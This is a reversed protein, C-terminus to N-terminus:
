KAFAETFLVGQRLREVASKCHEEDIEIGVATVGFEKAAVLTTGSGCCPDLIIGGPKLSHEILPSVIGVPKQTPHVARGHCSRVRIVSRMMRPGGDESRYTAAEIHGTHAPRAKRRVTKKVADSTTLVKRYISEWPQNSPYFHCANEHVRRFRDAHFTSGNHKEWVVDQAFKWGAFEAAQEMFFRMSGFCWLSGHPQLHGLLLSQWGDIRRDWDLSTEGYPPDVVVLDFLGLQPVISMCDGCYLTIGGKAFYPIPVSM